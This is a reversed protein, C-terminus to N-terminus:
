RCLFCLRKEIDAVTRESTGDFVQLGFHNNADPDEGLCAGTGREVADFNGNAADEM